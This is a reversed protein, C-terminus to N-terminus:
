SRSVTRRAHAKMVARFLDVGARSVDAPLLGFNWSLEFLAVTTGYELHCHTTLQNQRFKGTPLLWRVYLGAEETRGRLLERQAALGFAADYFFFGPTVQLYSHYDMFCAPRLRQMEERLAVMTADASSMTVVSIDYKDRSGRRTLKLGAEVGDPNVNPFLHFQYKRLLNKGPRTHLLFDAIGEVAFSGAPETAHTRAHVVVNGRPGREKGLTLCHIPRGQATKGIVRAQGVAVSGMKKLFRETDDNTYWPTAGFWSVGEPVEFRYTTSEPVAEGRVSFYDAGIKRYGFGRWHPWERDAWLLVIEIERKGGPNEIKVWTPNQANDAKDGLFRQRLEWQATNTKTITVSGAITDTIRIDQPARAQM